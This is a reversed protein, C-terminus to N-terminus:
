SVPAWAGVRERGLWRVESQDRAGWEGGGIEAAQTIKTFM